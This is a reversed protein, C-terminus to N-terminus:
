RIAKGAEEAQENCSAVDNSGEKPQEKLWIYLTNEVIRSGVCNSGFKLTAMNAIMARMNTADKHSEFEYLDAMDTTLESLMRRAVKSKNEGKSYEIPIPVTGLKKM